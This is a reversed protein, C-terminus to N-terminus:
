CGKSKLYEDQEAETMNELKIMEAYINNMIRAAEPAEPSSYPIIRGKFEGMLIDIYAEKRKEFESM